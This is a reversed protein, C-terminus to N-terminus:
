LSLNRFGRDAAWAAVQARSQLGLKSLIHKVHLKATGETIWLGSGIQRNSLGKTLLRLVQRERPTLDSLERTRTELLPGESNLVLALLEDLPEAAAEELRREFDPLVRRLKSELALIGAKGPAELEAGLSRLLSQASGLLRAAIEPTPDSVVEALGTMALAVGRQNGVRRWAAASTRFLDAAAGADGTRLRAYARHHTLMAQSWRDGVEVFRAHADDFLRGAQAYQGRQYQVVGLGRIAMACEWRDGLAEFIAHSETFAAEAQIPRESEYALGLFHLAWGLQPLHNGLRLVRVADEGLSRARDLEGRDRAIRGIWCLAEGESASDSADRASSVAGALLRGAGLYDAAWVSLAGAVVLLRTRSRIDVDGDLYRAAWAAGESPVGRRLWYLGLDAVLQAGTAPDSVLLRRLAARINDLDVELRDFVRVQDPSYYGASARRVMSAFYGAHRDRAENGEREDGLCEAAYDRITQLLRQREPNVATGPSVLSKAALSELAASVGAEDLEGFGCVAHAAAPDWGGQFTALRRFVLRESSGLLGYSWGIAARLTQQRSPLDRAGSNLLDLVGDLREVLSELSRGPLRAAALELALPLGDLRECLVRVAQEDYQRDMEGTAAAARTRFLTVAAGLDLTPVPVRTEWRLELPFRSTILLKPAQTTALLRALGPSAELVHEFNDLIILTPERWLHDALVDILDRDPQQIVGLVQAITAPVQAASEIASLDVFHVGGPFDASLSAAAAIALRTKGAGGTGTLTVLRVEERGLLGTITALERDRGILANPNAPLRSASPKVVM